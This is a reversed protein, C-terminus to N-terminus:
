DGTPAPPQEDDPAPPQEDGAPESTPTPTPSPPIDTPTASPEPPTNTATATPSPPVETPTPSPPINTATPTPSPPMSTPTLTPRLPRATPPPTSTAIDIAPETPPIRTATPPPTNTPLPTSTPPATNTPQAPETPSPSQIATQTPSPTHTAAPTASTSTPSAANNPATQTPTSTPTATPRPPRATPAPANTPIIEPATTAPLVPTATAEATLTPSATATPQPAPEAQELAQFIERQTQDVAPSADPDKAAWSSLTVRVDDILANLEPDTETSGALRNEAIASQVHHTLDALTNSVLMSNPMAGGALLQDLEVLRRQAYDLHLRGREEPSITVTLRIDEHAIKWTYLPDGPLSTASASDVSALLLTAVVIGGLARQVTAHRLPAAIHRFSRRRALLQDALAAFEQAGNPLWAELDQPLPASTDHRVLQATTLLTELDEAYARPISACCEAVSAGHLMRSLAQDFAETLPTQHSHYEM